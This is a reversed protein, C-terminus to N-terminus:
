DIYASHLLDVDAFVARSLAHSVSEAGAVVSLPLCKIDLGVVGAHKIRM